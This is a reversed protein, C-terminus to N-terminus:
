WWKYIYQTTENTVATLTIFFYDFFLFFLFSNSPDTNRHIASFKLKCIQTPLSRTLLLTTDKLVDFWETPLVM